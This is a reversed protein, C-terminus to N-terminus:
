QDERSKGTGLHGIRKRFIGLQCRATLFSSHGFIMFRCSFDKRDTFTCAPSPFFHSRLCSTRRKEWIGSFEQEADPLLLEGAALLAFASGVSCPSLAEKSEKSSLFM